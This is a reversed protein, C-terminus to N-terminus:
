MNNAFIFLYHILYYSFLGNGGTQTVNQLFFFFFFSFQIYKHGILKSSLTLCPLFALFYQFVLSVRKPSQKIPNTSLSFCVDVEDMLLWMETVHYIKDFVCKKHM